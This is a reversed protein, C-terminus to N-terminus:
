DGHHPAAAPFIAPSFASSGSGVVGKPGKRVRKRRFDGSSSDTDEDGSCPNSETYEEAKIVDEAKIIGAVEVRGRSEGYGTDIWKGLKQWLFISCLMSETSGDSILSVRDCSPCVATVCPIIREEISEVTRKLASGAVLVSSYTIRDELSFGACHRCRRPAAINPLISPPQQPSSATSDTTAAIASMHPLPLPAPFNFQNIFFDQIGILFNNCPTVNSNNKNKLDM